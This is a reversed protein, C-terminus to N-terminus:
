AAKKKERAKKKARLNLFEVLFSFAMAFYLYKKDLHHHLGDAVLLFGIMLLFSLALMKMTPHRHIFGSVAESFVLMFIMSLIVAAMM